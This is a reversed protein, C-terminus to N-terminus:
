DVLSKRMAVREWKGLLEHKREDELHQRVFKAEPQDLEDDSLIRYGLREYFPRNFPVDAYTTLYVYQLGAHRQWAEAHRMLATGIGRRLYQNHVSLQTIYGSRTKSNDELQQTEADGDLIRVAVFAVPKESNRFFLPERQAAETNEQVPSTDERSITAVWVPGDEVISWYQEPPYMPQEALESMGCSHFLQDSSWDLYPLVSLDEPEYPRIIFDMDKKSTM